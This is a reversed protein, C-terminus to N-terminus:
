MNLTLIEQATTSHINYYIMLYVNLTFAIYQLLTYSMNLNLEKM